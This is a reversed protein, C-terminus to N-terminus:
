WCLLFPFWKSYLICPDVASILLLIQPCSSSFSFNLCLM